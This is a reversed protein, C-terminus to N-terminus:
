DYHPWLGGIWLDNKSFNLLNRSQVSDGYNKLSLLSRNVSLIRWCMWWATADRRKPLQIVQKSNCRLDVFFSRSMHTLEYQFFIGNEWEGCCAFMDNLDLLSEHMNITLLSEHVNITYNREWEKTHYDKMVWIDIRKEDGSVDWLETDVIVLAMSGRLAILHTYELKLCPIGLTPTRYFEEKTFDFSIIGEENKTMLTESRDQLILWHMDGFACISRASDLDELYKCSNLNQPPLERWSNTGLELIQAVCGYYDSDEIDRTSGIQSLRLVKHTSTISDFGMGFVDEFIYTRAGNKKYHIGSRPLRLVEATFPDILFCVKKGITLLFLSCYSFYVFYHADDDTTSLIDSVILSGKSGDYHQCELAHQLCKLPRFSPMIYQSPKRFAFPFSEGVFRLTLPPDSAHANTLISFRSHLSVFFPSQVIDLLTKSVCRLRCVSNVPLRKFIDYMIEVPLDLLTRM